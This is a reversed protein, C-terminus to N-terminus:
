RRSSSSRGAAVVDGRSAETFTVVPANDPVVITKTGGKYSMTLERGSTSQVITDVNADTMMSGPLLDWAYHGDGSGRM